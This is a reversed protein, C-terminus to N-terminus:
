AIDAMAEKTDEMRFDRIKKSISFRFADLPKEIVFYGVVGAAISLGISAPVAWWDPRRAVLEMFVWHLLYTSFIAKGFFAMPKARLLRAIIHDQNYVGILFVAWLVSYEVYKNVLAAPPPELIGSKCFVSYAVLGVISIASLRFGAKEGICFNSVIVAGLVGLAFCPFIFALAYNATSPSWISGTVVMTVVLLAAAVTPGFVRIVQVCAFVLVPLVIYFGMEPPITWLHGVYIQFTIAPWFTANNLGLMGLFYYLVVALLFPPYIRLFRESGYVCLERISIPRSMLKLTLLFASLTFFLWVGIRATGTLLWLQNPAYEALAHFILVILCAVSRVGDMTASRKQM